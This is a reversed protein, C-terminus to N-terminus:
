SQSVIQHTDILREVVPQDTQPTLASDISVVQVVYCVSLRYTENFANWVRTLEELSVPNITVRVEPPEPRLWSDLFNARIVPRAALIQLCRGLIVLNDEPAQSVPTLLYYLNLSLPPHQQRGPGAPIMPRNNLHASPTVQYLYLSLRAQDANPASNDAIRSPSDLSISNESAFQSAVSDNGSLNEFLLRRLYLSIDQLVRYDSV